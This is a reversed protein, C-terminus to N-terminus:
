RNQLIYAMVPDHNNVWDEITPEIHIHPRLILDPPNIGFDSLTFFTNPPGFYYGSYYLETWFPETEHGFLTSTHYAYFDTLQGSPSGIITAGLSYLEGAAIAAASFTGSDILFFLGGPPTNTAIIRFFPSYAQNGGGGNGRTDIVVRQINHRRITAAARHFTHVFDPDFEWFSHIRIFLLNYDALVEYWNSIEPQRHTLPMEGAARACLIDEVRSLDPSLWSEHFFIYDATVLIVVTEGDPTTFTFSAEQGNIVGLANMMDPQILFDPFTARANYINETSWFGSFIDFVADVDMGGVATLRLNLAEAFYRQAQLLYFGDYLWQFRLPYRNYRLADVFGKGQGATFFMHADEFVVLARQMEIKVEFDTLGPVDGALKVLAADFAYGMDINRALVALEPYSFKPHVTFLQNRFQGLDSLWRRHREDMPEIGAFIDKGLWDVAERTERIVVPAPEPTPEPAPTPAVPASEGSEVAEPLLVPAPTPTPTPGPTPEPTEGAGCATFFLALFLTAALVTLVHKRNLM